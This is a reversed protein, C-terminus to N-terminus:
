SKSFRKKLPRRIVSNVHDIPLLPESVIILCIRGTGHKFRRKQSQTRHAGKTKSSSRASAKAELLLQKDQMHRSNNQQRTHKTLKETSVPIILQNKRNSCKSIIFVLLM